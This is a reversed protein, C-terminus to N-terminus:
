GIVSRRNRSQQIFVSSQNAVIVFGVAGIGLLTISFPEPVATISMADFFATNDHFPNLDPVPEHGQFLLEATGAPAEFVIVHERFPQGTTTAGLGILTGGIRIDFPLDGGEGSPGSRGAIWFDLKYTGTSPLTISQSFSGVSGGASQIYGVQSGEVAPPVPWVPANNIVGAGSFYTWPTGTPDSVFTGPPLVPLEFGGDAIIGASASASYVASSTIFATALRCIASILFSKM